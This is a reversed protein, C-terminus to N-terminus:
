KRNADPTEKRLKTLFARAQTPWDDKWLDNIVSMADDPWDPSDANPDCGLSWRGYAKEVVREAGDLLAVAERHLLGDPHSDSEWFRLREQIRM